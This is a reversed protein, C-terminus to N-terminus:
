GENSDGYKKEILEEMDLGLLNAISFTWAIVDALEEEIKSAEEEKLASALEGVEEILWMFTKPLGREQDRAGYRKQILDQFEGIEM